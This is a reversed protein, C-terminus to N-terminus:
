QSIAQVPCVSICKLALKCKKQDIWAKGNKWSIACNPCAAICAGCSICKKQDVQPKKNSKGM